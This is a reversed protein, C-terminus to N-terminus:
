KHQICSHSIERIKKWDYYVSRLCRGTFDVIEQFTKGELRLLFVTQQNRTLKSVILDCIEVAAQQEEQRAEEKSIIWAPDYQYFIEVDGTRSYSDWVVTEESVEGNEGYSLSVAKRRVRVREKISPPETCVCPSNQGATSKSPDCEPWICPKDFCVDDERSKFM